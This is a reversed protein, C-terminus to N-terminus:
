EGKIKDFIKIDKANISQKFHKISNTQLDLKVSEEGAKNKEIEQDLDSKELKLQSLQTKLSNQKRKDDEILRDTKEYKVQAIAMM